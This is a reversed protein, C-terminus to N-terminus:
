SARGIESIGLATAIQACTWHQWRLVKAALQLPAATITPSVHPRSSRDVLGPDGEVRYRGWWKRATPVSIDLGRAAQKFPEGAELRTVLEQRRRLTLRANKHINMWAEQGPHTIVQCGSSEGPRGPHVVEQKTVDLAGAHAPLRAAAGREVVSDALRSTSASPERNLRDQSCPARPTATGRRDSSAGLEIVSM